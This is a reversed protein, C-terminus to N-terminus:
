SPNGEPSATQPEAATQPKVAHEHEIESITETEVPADITTALPIEKIFMLLIASIIMLPLIYLFVPTLADNYSGIIVDRIQDPMGNVAAPTISNQDFGDQAAGAPMRETLLSTLRSTFLAGVVASGLSAGIERFFNNSATATGVIANPFSNQVILVLIQMGLGIGAGLIFLYVGFVVLSTQPTMTSMLLLGVAVVLSSAIPMWKYRGTKSALQGSVISTGMVGAMMPLMLFGANTANLGSVMQLYTPLYAIAGFMAVAIFLGAITSLNFNRERFLFLPIIPEAAKREVLVFVVGAVVALGILTLITPSGWEYETGGWSTILVISTVAVAMTLIGWVDLKPRHAHKPLKLFVVAAAISLLALPINIWFAWRWGISETFWGGLIPGLVSSIAFVGGMLGMYRGRERAPVIDAIIAQSLIMLGGGGLGQVARGAILWAMDPAAGGIVSGVLFLGLASLFLGKRGIVDGLKGYVPMTITAALIYATTVWLMHNVGGLDGVITPLATSLITQDLSSMFMAVLLGAFVLYVARKDTAPRPEHAAGQHTTETM